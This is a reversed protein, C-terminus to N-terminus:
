RTKNPSSFKIPFPHNKMEAEVEADSRIDAEIQERNDFYYALAAHIDALTLEPFLDVIQDPSLGQREHWIVIDMVRIRHGAIRAKGGVIGATVEIHQKIVNDM